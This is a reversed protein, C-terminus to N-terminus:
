TLINAQRGYILGKIGVAYIDGKGDVELDLQPLNDTAQGIVILGGKAADFTAYHLPCRYSGSEPRYILTGGMHTCYRSFAVIDHDAGAGNVARRGLKLLSIPSFRDPYTMSLEKGVALENVNALKKRPYPLTTAFPSHAEAETPIGTQSLVNAACPGCAIGASLKLFNRRSLDSM